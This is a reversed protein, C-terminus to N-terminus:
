RVGGSEPQYLVAALDPAAQGIHDGQDMKLYIVQPPLSSPVPYGSPLFYITPMSRSPTPPNFGPDCILFAKVPRNNFRGYVWDPIPIEAGRVPGLEASSRDLRHPRGDQPPKEDGGPKEDSWAQRWKLYDQAAAPKIQGRNLARSLEVEMPWDLDYDQRELRGVSLFKQGQGTMDGILVTSAGAALLQEPPRGVLREISRRSEPSDQYFYPCSPRGAIQVPVSGPLGTLRSGPDYSTVLVGQLETGETWAIQWLVSNYSSLLLLVPQDPSNVGVKVLGSPRTERGLRWGSYAGVALVRTEPELNFGPPLCPRDASSPPAEALATAALLLTLVMTLATSYIGRLRM